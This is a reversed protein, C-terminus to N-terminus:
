GGPGGGAPPRPGTPLVVKFSAGAGPGSHVEFWGGHEEIIGYAVSLGLGTGRGADKTTYFPDFVHKIDEQAIGIGTDTLTVVVCPRDGDKREPHAADEFAAGIKLRGGHPMADLANSALNLFVQQLQDPDAIVEPLEGAVTTELAVGQTECRREVLDVTTRIAAGVDTALHRRPKMRAFDLMDRVIRAIRESQSVIIGLHRAAQNREPEGRQLSEARGIIVNLPTGIEHALGAALRGLGALREANRLEAEVQRRHEQEVQLTERTRELRECMGNFERSLWGFEDDATVPVRSAVERAGVERFSRVLRAIPRSISRHTVLLVIVLTAGVMALTLELIFRQTTREDEAIYSELQLVQVAGVPQGRRNSLPVLFGVAPQNGITRRTEITQRDTLVRRLEEWHQFPYPDLTRPQYSLSGDQDFLRVGLVREYGTIRDALQRLDSIQRDRLYDESAIQVVRSIARGERALEERLLDRSRIRFAYGLVLTLAVMPLVIALTLKWGIRM